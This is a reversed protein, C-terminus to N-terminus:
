FAYFISYRILKEFVKLQTILKPIFITSNHLRLFISRLVKKVKGGQLSFVHILYTSKLIKIVRSYTIIILKLVKHKMEKLYYRSCRHQEVANCLLRIGVNKSSHFFFIDLWLVEYKEKTPTIVKARYIM